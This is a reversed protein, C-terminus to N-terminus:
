FKFVQEKTFGLDKLIGGVEGQDSASVKAGSVANYMPPPGCVFIKVNDATPSPLYPGVSEKTLYGSLGTWSESPKDLSYVVKFQEPRSAVIADIRDKLLIENETVYCQVLTVKTKDEPNKSIEHLLQYLPTIGTGGGILVIEPHKNASWAYKVIPGKMALKDGPKLQHIHKSAKGEPYEKVLLDLSGKQETDSIPTYPRIVNNGKATVYKVLLASATVLGSVADKDDFSFTFISTSDTVKKIDTLTLDVFEGTFVPSSASIPAAMSSYFYYSATGAIVAASSLAIASSSPRRLASASASTSYLRSASKLASSGTSRLFSAM